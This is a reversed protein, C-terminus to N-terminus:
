NIKLGKPIKIGVIVGGFVHITRVKRAFEDPDDTVFKRPMNLRREIDKQFYTIQYMNKEKRFVNSNTAVGQAKAWPRERSLARNLAVPIAQRIM